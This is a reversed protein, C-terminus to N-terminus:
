PPPGNLISVMDKFCYCILTWVLAVGMCAYCFKLSSKNPPVLLGQAPDTSLISSQEMFAKLCPELDIPELDSHFCHFVWDHTRSGMDIINATCDECKYFVLKKPKRGEATCRMLVAIEGNWLALPYSTYGEEVLAEDITFRRRVSWVMNQGSPKSVWLELCNEVQGVLGLRGGACGVLICRSLTGCLGHGEPLAFIEWSEEKVNFALIENRPRILWYITGSRRVVVHRLSDVRDDYDLCLQKGELKKWTWTESDFIECEFVRLRSNRTVHVGSEWFRVVKYRLNPGIRLGVMAFIEYRLRSNTVDFKSKPITQFQKTTPKCVCYQFSRESSVELLLVGFKTASLIRMLTGPMFSLSLTSSSSKSNSYEPRDEGAADLPPMPQLAKRSILMFFGSVLSKNREAFLKTFSPDYTIKELRESAERCTELTEVTTRSLIEVMIECPLRSSLSDAM